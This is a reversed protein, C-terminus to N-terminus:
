HGLSLLIGQKRPVRQLLGVAFCRCKNGQFFLRCGGCFIQRMPFKDLNSQSYTVLYVQRVASSKLETSGDEKGKTVIHSENEDCGGDSSKADTGYVKLFEM